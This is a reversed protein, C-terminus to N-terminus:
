LTNLAYLEITTDLIAILMIMVIEVSFQEVGPTALLASSL